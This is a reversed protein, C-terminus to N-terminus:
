RAGPTIWGAGTGNPGMASGQGEFSNAGAIGCDEGRGFAERLEAETRAQEASHQEVSAKAQELEALSQRMQEHLEALKKNLRPVAEQEAAFKGQFEDRAQRLGALEQEM